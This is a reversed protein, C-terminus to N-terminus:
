CIEIQYNCRYISNPDLMIIGEKELIKGTSTTTDAYGLWPEICIFQAKPKTWIGLSKFDPYNVRLRPSNNELLTVRKSKIQKFILADNVFLADCLKLKNQETKIAVLKDSVLGDILENSFLAENNNFELSYNDINQPLAFAPHAGIAFPMIDNNLNYIEFGIHLTKGEIQHTVIFEFDFPYKSKSVESSKLSMMVKTNTEEVIEFMCDRAFGHRPLSYANDNYSYSDNKLSGVIPFLIPSHKGWVSATGEWLFEENNHTIACLEAGFHKIQVQIESNSLLTKL